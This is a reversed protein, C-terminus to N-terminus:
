TCQIIPLEKKVTYVVSWLGLDPNKEYQINEASEGLFYRLETETPVNKVVMFQRGATARTALMNGEGDPSHYKADQDQLQCIFMVSAGATLKSHLTSLFLTVRSKPIHCWWLSAFAATFGEPIGNLTYANSTLFNINKIGSLRKRAVNIMAANVDTALISNATKAIIETSPGTGCAIELVDHGRFTEQMRAQLAEELRELVPDEYESEKHYDPALAAYYEAIDEALSM